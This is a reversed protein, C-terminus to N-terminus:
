VIKIIRDLRFHRNAKRMYCYAEIMLSGRFYDVVLPQIERTTIDGRADKYDIKVRSGSELASKLPQFRKQHLIDDIDSTSGSFHVALIDQLTMCDIDGLKTLCKLFIAMSVKSDELARHLKESKINLNEALSGLSYGFLGPFFQKSMLCTDLIPTDVTELKLMSLDHLLFGMDFPANHAVKVADDLFLLLSPLINEISPKDRVMDNTIGNVRTAEFPILIKPNILEQFTDIMGSIKFKTAGIEIIRDLGPTLGTTEVDFAVFTLDEILMKM